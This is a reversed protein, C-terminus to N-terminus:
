LNKYKVIINKHEEGDNKLNVIMGINYQLM